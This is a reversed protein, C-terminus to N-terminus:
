HSFSFLSNAKKDDGGTIDMDDLSNRLSGESEPTLQSTSDSEEDGLYNHGGYGATSGENSFMLRGSMFNANLEEDMLTSMGQPQSVPIGDARVHFSQNYVPQNQYAPLENESPM